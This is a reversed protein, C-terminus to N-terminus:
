GGPRDEGAARRMSELTRLAAAVADAARGIRAVAQEETMRPGTIGLAVPKLTEVAIGQLTSATANLITEDHATEGQVVAGVCVVADVDPRLALARAVPPLDYVGPVRVDAVITAGSERAKALAADRMKSTIGANFESVVLAIRARAM